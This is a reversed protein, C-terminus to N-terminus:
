ECKTIFMCYHNKTCEQWKGEIQGRVDSKSYERSANM